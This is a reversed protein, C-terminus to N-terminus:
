WMNRVSRAVRKNDTFLLVPEAGDPFSAVAVHQTSHDATRVNAFTLTFKGFPMRRVEADDGEM